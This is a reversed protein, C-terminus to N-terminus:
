YFNLQLAPNIYVSFPFVFLKIRGCSRIFKGFQFTFNPELCLAKILYTCYIHLNDPDNWHM